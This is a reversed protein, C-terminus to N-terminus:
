YAHMTESMVKWVISKHREARMVIDKLANLAEDAQVRFQEDGFLMYLRMYDNYEDLWENFYSSTMDM